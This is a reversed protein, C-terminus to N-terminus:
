EVNIYNKSTNDSIKKAPIGAITCNGDKFSKNVVSNAGIVTNNGIIIGGFIKAGPGIYVNDGIVQAGDIGKAPSNGINTCVHIRCNKGIKADGSVVITGVHVIALGKDFVNIPITWNYKDCLKLHRIMLIKKFLRHYPKNKCNYYYETYRLSKYFKFRRDFIRNYWKKNYIGTVLLDQKYYEKYEKKSKIM